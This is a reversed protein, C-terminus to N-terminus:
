ATGSPPPLCRPTDLGAALLAFASAFGEQLSATGVQARWHAITVRITGVVAAAVIGPYLDDDPNSGTRAAVARAMSREFTAFGAFLRPWLEPNERVVQMRDRWLDQKEAFADAMGDFVAGLATLPSEDAPRALLAGVMAEIEAPDPGLLAEDKSAFYNFFTRVSVDAADTIAEVTLQEYGHELALRVAASRLALRTEAKKRDRRGPVPGTVPASTAPTSM